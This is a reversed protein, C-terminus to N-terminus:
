RHEGKYPNGVYIFVFTSVIGSIIFLPRQETDAALACMVSSVAVIGCLSRIFSKIIQM